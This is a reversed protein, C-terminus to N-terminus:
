VVSEIASIPNIGSNGAAIHSDRTKFQSTAAGIYAIKRGLLAASMLFSSNRHFNHNIYKKFIILPFNVCVSNKKNKLFLCNNINIKFYFVFLCFVFTPNGRVRDFAASSLCSMHLTKVYLVVYM